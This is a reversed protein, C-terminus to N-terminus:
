ATAPVESEANIRRLERLAALLRERAIWGLNKAYDTAAELVETQAARCSCASHPDTMAADLRSVLLTLTASQRIAQDILQAEDM